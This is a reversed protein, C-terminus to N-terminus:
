SGSSGSPCPSFRVSVRLGIPIEAQNESISLMIQRYQRSANPVLPNDGVAIGINKVVGNFQLAPNGVASIHAQQRECMNPMESEDVYARVRPRTDDMLTILPVPAMSSVTQGPSVNNSLVTGAIPARVSCYDFRATVEDVRAKAADRRARAETLDEERSGARLLALKARMEDLLAAAIRADRQAQDIVVKTVTFGEQLQQSRRLSKEAEQLRADALNVNAVGISVEEARPGHVTRSLAADAAALDSIRADLEREISRCDIRVLLQGPKVHDGPAVLMEAVTGTAATGLSLISAAEVRGASGTADAPKTDGTGPWWWAATVVLLSPFLKTLVPFSLLDVAHDLLGAM